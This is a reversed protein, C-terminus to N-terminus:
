ARGDDDAAHGRTRTRRGRRRPPGSRRRRAGGLRGPHRRGKPPEDRLRLPRHLGAIGRGHGPVELPGVRDDGRVRGHQQVEGPRANLGAVGDPRLTREPPQRRDPDPPPQGVVRYEPPPQRGRRRPARQERAEGLAARRHDPTVRGHHQGRGVQDDLADREGPVAPPPGRHTAPAIPVPAIRPAAWSPV